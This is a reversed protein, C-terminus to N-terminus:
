PRRHTPLGRAPVKASLDETSSMTINSEIAYLGSAVLKRTCSITSQSIKRTKLFDGVVVTRFTETSQSLSEIWHHCGSPQSLEALFLCDQSQLAASLLEKSSSIQVIANSSNHVRRELEELLLPLQRFSSMCKAGLNQLVFNLSDLSRSQHHNTPM